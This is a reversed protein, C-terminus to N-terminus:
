PKGAAPVAYAGKGEECQAPLANNPNTGHCWNGWWMMITQGCWACTDLRYAM